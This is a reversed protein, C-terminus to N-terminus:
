AQQKRRRAIVSVVGLGAIMMAWEGPEPVASVETISDVSINDIVTGSPMGLLTYFSLSLNSGDSLWSTSAYNVVGGIGAVPPSPDEVFTLGGNWSVYFPTSASHPNTTGTIGPNGAYGFTLQYLLGAITGISQNLSIGGPAPSGSLELSRTSPAPFSGFDPSVVVDVSTGTVTWANDADTLSSPANYTYFADGGASGGGGTNSAGAGNINEFTETFITAAFSSTTAALLLAATSSKLM